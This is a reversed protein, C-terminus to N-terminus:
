HVHSVSQLTSSRLTYDWPSAICQYNTVPHAQREVTMNEWADSVLKELRELQKMAKGLGKLKRTQPLDSEESVIAAYLRMDM